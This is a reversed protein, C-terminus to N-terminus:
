QMYAGGTYGCEDALFNQTVEHQYLLPMVSLYYQWSGMCPLSLINGSLQPDSYLPCSSQHPCIASLYRMPGTIPFDHARAGM